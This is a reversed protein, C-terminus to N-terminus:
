LSFSFNKDWLMCGCSANVPFFFFFFLLENCADVHWCANVFIKGVDYM